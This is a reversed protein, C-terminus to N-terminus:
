CETGTWGDADVGVSTPRHGGVSLAFNELDFQM